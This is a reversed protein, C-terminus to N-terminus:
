ERSRRFSLERKGDPDDHEHAYGSLMEKDELHLKIFVDEKSVKGDMDVDLYFQITEDKCSGQMIKNLSGKPLDPDADELLELRGTVTEEIIVLELRVDVKEITSYWTGAMPYKVARMGCGALMGGILLVILVMKM